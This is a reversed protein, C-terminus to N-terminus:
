TGYLRSKRRCIANTSRILLLDPDRPWIEFLRIVNCRVTVSNSRALTAPIVPEQRDALYKFLLARHRLLGHTIQGLMVVNSNHAKKLGAICNKSLTELSLEPLASGYLGSVGGM